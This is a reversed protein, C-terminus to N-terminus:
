IKFIIENVRGTINSYKVICKYLTLNGDVIDSKIKTNYLEIKNQNTYNGEINEIELKVKIYLSKGSPDSADSNKLEYKINNETALNAITIVDYITVNEKGEFKNFQTNFKSLQNIENQNHIERSTAGFSIFLYVALSLILLGILVGAGILLAKSANEM